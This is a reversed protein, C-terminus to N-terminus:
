FSYQAGLSITQLVNTKKGVSLNIGPIDCDGFIYVTPTFTVAINPLVNAKLKLGLNGGIVVASKGNEVAQAAHNQQLREGEYLSVNDSMLIAITPGGFAELEFLRGPVYGAMLNTLNAIYNVPVMGWTMKHTGLGNRVTALYNNDPYELNLDYYDTMANKKHSLLEFAARVGHMSNFHYEFFLQGGLAASGNNNINNSYDLFTGLSGGVGAVFRKYDGLAAPKADKRRMALARTYISLGISASYLQESFKKNWKINSYPIKYDFYTYRPELFVHLDDAIKAWLHLGCSYEIAFTRLEEEQKKRLWGIGIGGTLYAGCTADWSFKKTLGFPNFLAEVRGSLYSSHYNTVYSPKYSPSLVEDTTNTNWKASRLAGTARMGIIPSFWKGVSLSLEHGRTETLSLKDSGSMMTLGSSLEVFWPTRWTPMITDNGNIVVNKKYRMRAEPSLNNHLYYIFSITAGYFFDYKRYNRAGSFDGNDGQVGLYPELALYGQPGTFFKFQMGGHLEPTGDKLINSYRSYMYGAGLVISADMLRTPDYGDMYSSIDFLYDAKIGVRRFVTNTQQQYGYGGYMTLRASHYKNFQKGVAVSATTLPNFKYDKSPPVMQLVGAGAELYLHDDWKKTFQDGHNLYRKDYYMTHRYANFGEAYNKRVLKVSDKDMGDEMDDLENITDNVAANTPAMAMSTNGWTEVTMM